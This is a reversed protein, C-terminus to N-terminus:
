QFRAQLVSIQDFDRVQLSRKKHSLALAHRHIKFLEKQPPVEGLVDRELRVIIKIKRRGVEFLDIHKALHSRGPHNGVRRDGGGEADDSFWGSVNTTSPEATSDASVFSKLSSGRSM